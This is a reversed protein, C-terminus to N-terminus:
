DEDCGFAGPDEVRIKLDNISIIEYNYDTCFMPKIRCTGLDAKAWLYVNKYRGRRNKYIAIKMNPTDFTNASLITQLAELDRQNAPLLHMGLDISDAISKAGRLLSQDPIEAEKWDGNLQTSSLIFVGYENAIDKLRRSLMFLINDERLKVGGSKGSIEELIKLSTMIYDHFVYRVNNERINKKIINEVDQLSFDPLEVVYIPSRKLIDRAKEVRELEDGEFKFNMIHEENVGSLFALMLTQIENLEQETTIYLVPEATGNRIWGFIDDYIENCGIYCVDAIMSRTKGHGTPASRLYMKKLRAGRTVTNILPGYMPVGVDPRAALQELLDDINQAAQYAEGFTNDVYQMNINDIKEVIKAAIQLLSSNDLLDEQLQKKKLDLINDVDYIDSVDIGHNDYARLLSFKKLRGYYYDFTSLNAAESTKIIWEEGKNQTFVAYNKQRSSLYNVITELTIQKAGQHYLNYITGFVIKHFPEAFDEDTITYKDTADLLSPKKYVCGIIQIAAATDVYKSSM